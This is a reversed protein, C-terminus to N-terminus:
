LGSFGVCTKWLIIIQLQQFSLNLPNQVICFVRLLLIIYTVKCLYFLFREEISQGSATRLIWCMDEVFNYNTTTQFIFQSPQKNSTTFNSMTTPESRLSAPKAEGARRTGSAWILQVMREIVFYFFLLKAFIFGFVVKIFQRSVSRFIWCMDEVFNYNTTTPFIFQSTKSDYLIREISLFSFHKQWHFILTTNTQLSTIHLPFRVFTWGSQPQSSAYFKACM